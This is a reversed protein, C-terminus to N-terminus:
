CRSSYRAFELFEQMLPVSSLETVQKSEVAHAHGVVYELLDHLSSIMALIRSRCCPAALKILNNNAALEGPSPLEGRLNTLGIYISYPEILQGHSEGELRAKKVRRESIDQKLIEDVIMQWHALPDVYAPENALIDLNYYRSQKAFTSLFSIIKLSIPNNTLDNYNPVQYKAALKSCRDFLKVLDHGWNKLDKQNPTDLQNTAMHEVILIVKMLRELGISLQFFASYFQGVHDIDARKLAKLGEKLSWHFLEGEQSLLQGKENFMQFNAM